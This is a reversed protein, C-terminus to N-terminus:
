VAIGGSGHQATPGDITAVFIQRDLGKMAQQWDEVASPNVHPESIVCVDADVAILSDVNAIMITCATGPMQCREDMLEEEANRPAEDVWAKAAAAFWDPKLNGGRRTGLELAHQKHKVAEVARTGKFARLLKPRGVECGRKSKKCRGSQRM